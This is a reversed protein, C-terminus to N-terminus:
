LMPLPRRVNRLVDEALQVHIKEVLVRALADDPKALLTQAHAWLALSQCILVATDYPTSFVLKVNQKFYILLDPCFQPQRQIFILLAM